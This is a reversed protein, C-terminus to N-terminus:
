GETGDPRPAAGVGAGVDIFGRRIATGAPGVARFAHRAVGPGTNGAPHFQVRLTAPPCVPLAFRGGIGKVAGADGGCLVDVASDCVMALLCMGHAIAGSFGASVAVERDLHVPNCDGSAAAYRAPQDESVVTESVIPVGEERVAPLPPIAGWESAPFQNRILVTASMTSVIEGELDSVEAHLAATTGLGNGRVGVLRGRCRVEGPELLREVTMEHTVHVIHPMAGTGSVIWPHATEVLTEWAPVAAFLPPAAAGPRSAVGDAQIARVYSRILDTTIRVSRVGSWTGKGSSTTGSAIV